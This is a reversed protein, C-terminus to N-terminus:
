LRIRRLLDHVIEAIQMSLMPPVANGVQQYQSTRNGEFMFNDPFTQLRAAERVTLSRCQVPDPHIFYHGDKSIHSTITASPKDALQVRFRDGFFDKKVAKQVNKHAPLLPKPFDCLTASQNNAAAYSAAFFYRHLDSQMHSRATHNMIIDACDTRFWKNYIEPKGQYTLAEGGLMLNANSIMDLAEDIKNVTQLLGNAKGKVYWQEDQVSRLIRKWREFSDEEKSLASRIKPLDGIIQAVSPATSPTLTDPTINIDSRIGLILVRHRAQPIGFKETEVLFDEPELFADGKQEVLSFLRYGIDNRPNQTAKGPNKLDRLIKEIIRKGSHMASLLGKVNEMIFVPPKHDALIKLYEQYLFHRADKEFDPKTSKMRARGVMSYAQCPPGGVLVWKKAKGLQRNILGHVENHNKKGLEICHAETTARAAQRPYLAFLEDRTIEGKAYLWYKGPIDGPMFKKFFSRLLLTSHASPDKEIALATRFPRKNGSVTFSSFGEGFGGVGAFLDIVPYYENM